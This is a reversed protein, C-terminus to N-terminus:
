LATTLTCRLRREDHHDCASGAQFAYMAILGRLAQPSKPLREIYAVGNDVDGRAEYVM